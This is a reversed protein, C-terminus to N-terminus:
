QEDSPHRRTSRYFKALETDNEIFAGINGWLNVGIISIQVDHLASGRTEDSTGGEGSSGEQGCNKEKEMLEHVSEQAKQQFEAFLEATSPKKHKRKQAPVVVNKSTMGANDAGPGGALLMERFVKVLVYLRQVKFPVKKLDIKAKELMKDWKKSLSEHESVTASSGSSAAAGGRTNGATSGAGYDKTVRWQILQLLMRLDLEINENVLVLPVQLLDFGKASKKVKVHHFTLSSDRLASDDVEYDVVHFKLTSLGDSLHRKNDKLKYENVLVINRHYILANKVRHTHNVSHMFETNFRGHSYAARKLGIGYVGEKLDLEPNKECVPSCDGFLLSEFKFRLNLDDDECCWGFYRNSFGNVKRWHSRHATVIAGAFLVYPREWNYRDIENSLGTPVDCSGYDTRLDPLYDVDHVTVCDRTALLEDEDFNDANMESTRTRMPSTSSMLVEECNLCIDNMRGSIALGANFLFGRNFPLDDFQEVFYINFEFVARPNQAFVSFWKWYHKMMEMHEQRDRFPVIITARAPSQHRYHHQYTASLFAPSPTHQKEPSAGAPPASEEEAHIIGATGQGASDPASSISRPREKTSGSYFEEEFSDRANKGLVVDDVSLLPSEGGNTNTLLASDYPFPLSDGPRLPKKTSASSASFQLETKAPAPIVRYDVCDACECFDAGFGCQYHEGCCPRFGWANCTKLTKGEIASKTPPPPKMVASSSHHEKDDLQEVISQYLQYESSLRNHCELEFTAHRNSSAPEEEVPVAQALLVLVPQSFLLVSFTSLMLALGRCVRTQSLFLCVLMASVVKRCPYFTSFVRDWHSLSYTTIM